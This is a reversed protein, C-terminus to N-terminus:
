PLKLAADIFGLLIHLDSKEFVLFLANQDFLGDRGMDTQLPYNAGNELMETLRDIAQGSDNSDIWDLDCSCFDDIGVCTEGKVSLAGFHWEGGSCFMTGAPLQLFERRRYIRM